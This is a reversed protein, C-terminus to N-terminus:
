LRGCGAAGGRRARQAVRGCGGCLQAAAAAGPGARGGRGSWRRGGPGAGGRGASGRLRPAAGVAAGAARRSPAPRPPSLARARQQGPPALSGWHGCDSGCDPGRAPPRKRLEPQPAPSSASAVASDGHRGGGAPMDWREVVASAAGRLPAEVPAGTGKLSSAERDPSRGAGEEAGVERQRRRGVRRSGASAPTHGPRELGSCGREGGGKRMTGGNERYQQQLQLGLKFAVALSPGTTLCFHKSGGSLDDKPSSLPSASASFTGLVCHRYSHLFRIMLLLKVLNTTDM